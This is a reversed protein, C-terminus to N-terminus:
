VGAIEHLLEALKDAQKAKGPVFIESSVYEATQMAENFLRIGGPAIVAYSIRADNANTERSVLGTKEMPALIRTIASATVGLKGALDIRRLKGNPAENLHYLIIFDNFGLGHMSLQGDLKRTIVAQAKALHLILKLNNSKETM